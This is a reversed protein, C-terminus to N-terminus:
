LHNSLAFTPHLMTYLNDVSCQNESSAALIGVIDTISANIKSFQQIEM